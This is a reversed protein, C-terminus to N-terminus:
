QFKFRLIKKVSQAIREASILSDQYAGCLKDLALPVNEAFRLIDNGVLFAELDIDGPQKFNAAGKMNLADTFILGKFGMQNQLLDTVVNHSISSPHGPRPELSPVNLHAVMVSALGEEFLTK